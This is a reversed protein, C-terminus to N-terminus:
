PKQDAAAVTQAEPAKHFMKWWLGHHGPEPAPPPAAALKSKPRAKKAVTAVRKVPKSQAAVQKATVPGADALPKAPAAEPAIPIVIAAPAARLAPAPMASAVPAPTEAAHRATPAVSQQSVAGLLGAVFAAAFLAEYRV